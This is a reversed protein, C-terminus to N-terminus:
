FRRCGALRLFDLALRAEDGAIVETEVKAQARRFFRFDFNAPGASFPFADGRHLGILENSNLLTGSNNRIAASFFSAYTPALM